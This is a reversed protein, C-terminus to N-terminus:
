GGIEGQSASVVAAPGQAMTQFNQVPGVRSKQPHLASQQEAYWVFDSLLEQALEPTCINALCNLAGGIEYQFGDASGSSSSGSTAGTTFAKKFLHVALLVVDTEATFSQSAALFAVKKHGFWPQSMVEIVWFAAWSM